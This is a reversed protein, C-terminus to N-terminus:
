SEVNLVLTFHGNSNKHVEISSLDLDSIDHGWVGYKGDTKNRNVLGERKNLPITKTNATREEEKYIEHYL